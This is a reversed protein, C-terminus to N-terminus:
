EHHVREEIDGWAYAPLAIDVIDDGYSPWSNDRVCEAYRRLLAENEMRGAELVDDRLRYVAVGHPPESEVAIISYHKIGVNQARIGDVYMAGQNYYGMSFITREFAPKRADRCTKLDVITGGAIEWSVRDARGKCLLDVGKSRLEKREEALFHDWAFSLEVDGTGHLLHHATPNDHVAKQMDVCRKYDGHRLITASPFHEQLSSWRQKGEKTRLDVEPGSVYADAFMEPELIAAHTASGLLMAATPETPNDLAYRAHLPSRKFHQLTSNSVARWAHYDAAPVGKHLGPKPVRNAEITALLDTAIREASM